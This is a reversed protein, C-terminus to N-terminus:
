IAVGGQELRDHLSQLQREFKKWKGISRRHMKERVQVSSATAIPAANRDFELCAEEFPLGLLDLMRRTEREPESVLNEYEVEVMRDGLTERWHRSLRDYALYYDALDDLSYAFRFYSQKYTAFCADMPHRRMHIIRSDPWSKAIFGLYLVNEPLKEVFFPKDGLRHSMAEVYATAISEPAVRAAAEVIEPSMDVKSDIGSQRRLVMQLLQTEGGSEVMSHSSLVRDTLTTGTRPLGVVFIPTRATGRGEPGDLLWDRTCVEVIKDMIAVDTAVDHDSVSKVADGAKKYYDFAESWRELDELEKGLAYYLYINKSPEDDTKRLVELM